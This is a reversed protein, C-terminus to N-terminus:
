GVVSGGNRKLHHLLIEIGKEVSDSGEIAEADMDGNTKAALFCVFLRCNRFDGEVSLGAENGKEDIFIVTVCSAGDNGFKVRYDEELSEILKHLRGMASSFSSSCNKIREAATELFSLSSM